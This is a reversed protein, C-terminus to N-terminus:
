THNVGTRSFANRLWNNLPDHSNTDFKLSNGNIIIM